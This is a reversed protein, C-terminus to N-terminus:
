SHRTFFLFVLILNELSIIFNSSAFSVWVCPRLVAKRRNGRCPYTASFLTHNELDETKFLIYLNIM